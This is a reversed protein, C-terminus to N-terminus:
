DKANYSRSKPDENVTAPEPAESVLGVLNSRDKQREILTEFFQDLDHGSDEWLKERTERIEKIIENDIM